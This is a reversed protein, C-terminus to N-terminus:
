ATPVVTAAAVMSVSTDNGPSESSASAAKVWFIVNTAPIKTAITISSAYTGNESLAASWKSATGGSFSITTYGSTEYGSQCRLAVPATKSENTSADLSFTLPQTQQGDLSIQTGDVGGATPNDKYFNIYANAM